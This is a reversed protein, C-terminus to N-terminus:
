EEPRKEGRQHHDSAANMAAVVPAMIMHLLRSFPIYAIFAGTLAAHIYWVFGYVETLGRPTSFLLSIGYGMFAYAANPPYGTLAIRMGELVFGIVVIGGILGLALRDQELLGPVRRDRHLAGRVFALVIGVLLLLGTIDFWFATWPNNKNVMDWVVPWEPQWRSGLLALLGWGFRFVFPWFILAHIVWRIRSRRYLRRQLLVDWFLVRIIPVIRASFLVTLGAKLFRILRKGPNSGSEGSLSGSLSLSFFLILGMCFIVLAVLTIPDDVSFTATHCPMCLIGKPPLVMAAVGLPNGAYHCRQCPTEDDFRVMEHISSRSGPVREKEWRICDAEMDRVARVGKLHCAQCSVNVHADRAVAEHHPLHCKGCAVPEQESHMLSVAAQHCATCALHAHPTGEHSQPDMLPVTEGTIEQAQTGSRGHCHLCLANIREIEEPEDSMMSQHCTMCAQDESSFAPLVTRAPHCAGCQQRVPLEPDFRGTQRDEARIPYHPDHCGICAEYESPDDVQLSGHSGEELADMIGDHCYLCQDPSFEKETTKSFRRPDPHLSQDAIAGHCALCSMEGHGSAHFRAPDMFWSAQANRVGCLLLVGVVAWLVWPAPIRPYPHTKLIDMPIM